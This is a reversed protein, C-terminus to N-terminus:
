LSHGGPGQSYDPSGHTTQDAPECCDQAVDAPGPKGTRRRTWLAALVILAALCLALLAIPAINSGVFGSAASSLANMGGAIGQNSRGTALAPAWYAILYGGSLVLV